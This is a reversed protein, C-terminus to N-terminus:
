LKKRNKTNVTLQFNVTVMGSSGGALLDNATLSPSM